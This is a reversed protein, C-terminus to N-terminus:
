LCKELAFSEVESTSCEFCDFSKVDVTTGDRSLFEIGNLCKFIRESSERFPLNCLSKGNAYIIFGEEKVAVSMKFQENIEFPFVDPVIETGGLWYHNECQSNVKLSKAELHVRMHFLPRKLEEDFINLAFSGANSGRTVGSIVVIDGPKCKKPVSLRLVTEVVRPWQNPQAATTHEVQYINEVDNFINLSKIRGYYQRHLFTCYPKDDITVFFMDVDIYIAIKFDAGQIIPNAVNGQILNESEEEEGWVDKTKSCRVIKPSDTYRVSMYFPIESRDGDVSANFEIAFYTANDYTKGGITIVQGVEIKSLISTFKSEM